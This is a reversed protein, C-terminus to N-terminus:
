VKVGEIEGGQGVRYNLRVEVERGGRGRGMVRYEVRGWAERSFGSELPGVDVVVDAGRGPGALRSGCRDAAEFRGRTEPMPATPAESEAVDYPSSKEDGPLGLIGGYTFHKCTVSGASAASVSVLPKTLHNTHLLSSDAHVLYLLSPPPSSSYTLSSLYSVYALASSPPFSTVLHSLSSVVILTPPGTSVLSKIRRYSHLLIDGYTTAPQPPTALM